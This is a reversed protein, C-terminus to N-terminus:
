SKGSSTKRESVFAIWKGDPSWKPESDHGSQTLQILSKPGDRYLWLDTRFIQQDWDAREAAIVVSNGDPSIEVAPIEVYNFFEDLTIKPKDAAFSFSALLVLLAALPVRPRIM